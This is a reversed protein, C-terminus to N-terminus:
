LFVIKLRSITQRSVSGQVMGAMRMRFRRNSGTGLGIFKLNKKTWKTADNLYTGGDLYVTDNDAVLNRVQSPLTYTRTAGVYWETASCYNAILLLVTLTASYKLIM